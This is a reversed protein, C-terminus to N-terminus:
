NEAHYGNQYKMENAECASGIPLVRVVRVGDVVDDCFDYQSLSDVSVEIYHADNVEHDRGCLGEVGPSTGYKRYVETHLHFRMTENAKLELSYYEYTDGSRPSRFDIQIDNGLTNKFTVYREEETPCVTCAVLLSIVFLVLLSRV